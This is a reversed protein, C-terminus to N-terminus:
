QIYHIISKNHYHHSYTYREQNNQTLSIDIHIGLYEVKYKSNHIYQQNDEIDYTSVKIAHLKYIKDIAVSTIINISYPVVALLANIGVSETFTNAVRDDIDRASIISPMM